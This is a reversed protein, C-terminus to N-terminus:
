SRWASNLKPWKWSLLGVIDPTRWSTQECARAHSWDSSVLPWGWRWKPGGTPVSCHRALFVGTPGFQSIVQGWDGTTQRALDCSLLSYLSSNWIPFIDSDHWALFHSANWYQTLSFSCSHEWCAGCCDPSYCHCHRWSWHRNLGSNSGKSGTGQNGKRSNRLRQSKRKRPLSQFRSTLRRRTVSVPWRGASSSRSGRGVGGERGGRGGAGGWGLEKRSMNPGPLIVSVKKSHATSLSLLVNSTFHRGRRKFKRRSVVLVWCTRRNDGWATWYWQCQKVFQPSSFPPNFTVTFSAGSNTRLCFTSQIACPVAPTIIWRGHGHVPEHKLENRIRSSNQGRSSQGTNGFM